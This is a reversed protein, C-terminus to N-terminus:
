PEEPDELALPWELSDARDAIAEWVRRMHEADEGHVTAYRRLEEASVGHAALVARRASDRREPESSPIVQRVLSLHAMAEVYTSDSPLGEAGGDEGCAALGAVALAALVLGRPVSRLHPPAVAPGGREPGPATM